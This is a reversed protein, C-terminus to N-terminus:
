GEAPPAVEGPEDEEDDDEDPGFIIEIGAWVADILSEFSGRDGPRGDTTEVPHEVSYPVRPIAATHFVVDAGKFIEQIKETSRLFERPQPAPVVTPSYLKAPGRAGAPHGFNQPLAGLCEYSSGCQVWPSEQAM